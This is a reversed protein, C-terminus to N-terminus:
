RNQQEHSTEDSVKEPLVCAPYITANPVSLDASPVHRVVVPPHVCPQVM